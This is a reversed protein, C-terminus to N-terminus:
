TVQLEKTRDLVKTVTKRSGGSSAAIGSENIGHSYLRLIERYQTM